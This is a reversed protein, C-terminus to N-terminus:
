LVTTVIHVVQKRVNLIEANQEYLRNEHKTHDTRYVAM